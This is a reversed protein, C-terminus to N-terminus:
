KKHITFYEDDEELNFKGKSYKDRFRQLEVSLSGEMFESTVWSEIAYQELFTSDKPIKIIMVQPLLFLKDVTEAVCNDLFEGAVTVVTGEGIEFGREALKKSVKKEVDPKVENEWEERSREDNWAMPYSLEGTVILNDPYVASRKIGEYVDTWDTRAPDESKGSANKRWDQLSPEVHPIFLLVDGETKPAFRRVVNDQLRQTQEVYGTGYTYSYHHSSNNILFSPHVLVSLNDITKLGVREKGEVQMDQKEANSVDFAV